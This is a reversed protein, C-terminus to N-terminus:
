DDDSLFEFEDPLDLNIDSHSNVTNTDEKKNFEEIQLNKDSIKESFIKSSSELEKKISEYKNLRITWGKAEPTWWGSYKKIITRKDYTDGSIIIGNPHRTLIVNGSKIVLKKKNSKKKPTKKNTNPSSQTRNFENMKKEILDIKKELRSLTELIKDSAKPM